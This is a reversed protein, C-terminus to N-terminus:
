DSSLIDKFPTMHTKKKGVNKDLLKGSTSRVTAIGLHGKLKM